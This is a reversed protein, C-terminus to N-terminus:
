GRKWFILLITIMAMMVLGINIWFILNEDKVVIGIPSKDAREILSYFADSGTASGKSQVQKNELVDFEDNPRLTDYRATKTNFFVFYFSNGLTIRGREKPVILYSFIKEGTVRGGARQITQRTNPSYVELLDSKITKPENLTSINGEGKLIIDVGVGQNLGIEKKGIKTELAFQGVSVNGKLPHDPLDKVTITIPKSYFAKIEQKRPTGFFTPASSTKYSVMNLKLQPINLTRAVLPFITAQYIRYETYGRNGIKVKRPVIEEIGFNEEWCNDPKVKRVLEALQTGLEYFDLDAQNDDSVLFSMTLNFGEGAWVEKKDTQISFTADAKVEKLDSNKGKNFFDEFPDYAFPNSGFPDSSKQEVPPGIKITAGPSKVQLGQVTMTFAPLKFTGEKEPMYNQIISTENTVQGNVSRMSSSSSTGAKSLGPINPFNSYNDLDADKATLSITFIQNSGIETPGITIQYKQASAGNM